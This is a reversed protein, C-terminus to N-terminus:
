KEPWQTHCHNCTRIVDCTTKDARYHHTTQRITKAPTDSGYLIIDHEETEEHHDAGDPITTDQETDPPTDMDHLDRDGCNPCPGKATFPRPPYRTSM